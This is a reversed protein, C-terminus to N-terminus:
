PELTRSSLWQLILSLGNLLASLAFLVIYVITQVQRWRYPKEVYKEWEEDTMM